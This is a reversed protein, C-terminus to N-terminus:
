GSRDMPKDPSIPPGSAAQRQAYEARKRELVAVMHDFRARLQADSHEIDDLDADDMDTGDQTKESSADAKPALADISKAARAVSMLAKAKKDAEAWVAPDPSQEMRAVEQTLLANLRDHVAGVGATTMDDKTAM